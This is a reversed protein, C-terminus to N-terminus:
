RYMSRYNLPPREIQPYQAPNDLYERLSPQQQPLAEIRSRVLAMFEDMNDPARPVNVMGGADAQNPGIFRQFESPVPLTNRAFVESSTPPAPPPLRPQGQGPQFGPQGVPPPTPPDALESEPLGTNLAVSSFDYPTSGDLVPLSPADMPVRRSPRGALDNITHGLELGLSKGDLVPVAPGPGNQIPRAPLQQGGLRLGLEQLGQAWAAPDLGAMFDQAFGGSRQRRAANVQSKNPM